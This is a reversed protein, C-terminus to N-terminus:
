DFLSIQKEDLIQKIKVRSVKSKVNTQKILEKAQSQQSKLNKEKVSTEEIDLIFYTEAIKYVEDDDLHIFSAGNAKKRVEQYVYDSCGKLSKEKLQVRKAFIKDNECRNILYKVIPNIPVGVNGINELERELKEVATDIDEFERAIKSM